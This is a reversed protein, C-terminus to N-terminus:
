RRIQEEKSLTIGVSLYPEKTEERKAVIVLMGKMRSKKESLYCKGIEFGADKLLRKIHDESRNHFHFPEGLIHSFLMDALKQLPKSFLYLGAWTYSWAFDMLFLRGDKKLKEYIARLIKKANEDNYFSLTVMMVAIDFPENKLKLNPNAINDCVLEVDFGRLNKKAYEIMESSIDIGSIRPKIYPYKEQLLSVVKFIFGGVGCGVDILSLSNDKHNKLFEELEKVMVPVRRAVDPKLQKVYEGLLWSCEEHPTDYYAWNWYQAVADHIRSCKEVEEELSL